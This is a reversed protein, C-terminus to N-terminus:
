YDHMIIIFWLIFYPMCKRPSCRHTCAHCTYESPRQLIDYLNCLQRVHAMALIHALRVIVWQLVTVTWQKEKCLPTHSLANAGFVDCSFLSHWWFQKLPVSQSSIHSAVELKGDLVPLWIISFSVFPMIRMTCNPGTSCGTNISHISTTYHLSQSLKCLQMFLVKLALAHNSIICEPSTCMNRVMWILEHSINIFTYFYGGKHISPVPLLKGEWSLVCGRM